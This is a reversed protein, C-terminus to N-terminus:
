ELSISSERAVAVTVGHLIHRNLILRTRRGALLAAPEAVAPLDVKERVSDFHAFAKASYRIEDAPIFRLPLGLKTAAERLGPEAAKIEASALLRVHALECRALAVAEGVAQVIADAPAGRRCGVGVIVNKIAETTTSIVPEAGIANAARMALDNAGGEHGSLLSVAWRAGVDVAVVAPDTAKHRIWPAIARVVVGIPAVYLLGHYRTFLEGTLKAIRHFRTAEPFETVSDHLYLEVSDLSAALAAAVRAGPNSLSIAATKM